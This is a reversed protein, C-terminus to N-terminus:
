DATGLYVAADKLAKEMQEISILAPDYWVTNAESFDKFHSSVLEVGKLGDLVKESVDYWSVYFVAKALEPNEAKLPLNAHISIAFILGLILLLAVGLKNRNKMKKTEMCGCAM